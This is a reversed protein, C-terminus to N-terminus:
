RANEYRAENSRNYFQEAGDAATVMHIVGDYRKDRLQANSLGVEDVVAMWLEDTVYASGDMLGRDCFIVSPENENRALETFTDELAMQARLLTSQFRVAQAFEFTSVKILAGGKM